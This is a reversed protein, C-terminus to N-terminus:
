NSTGFIEKFRGISSRFGDEFSGGEPHYVSELSVIGDFGDDRLAAAIDPFYDAMQGEGLRCQAVTAGPIDVTLDKIHIHGLCGRLASYGDPFAPEACYLSNGPDWLIKLRESGMEDVLRRGLVGSTIIANNGTELVLTVDKDHALQVAPELLVKAKDWAGTAVNWQEAGGSGFLIMEKRFSMIRVLGCGLAKATDVCRRLGDMQDSHWLDGVETSGVPAGAFLHRSLCCVDMDYQKILAQVRGVQADSLDGIERDWVYQLEAQRLGHEAMVELAHEFERSIGDTIVGIEHM